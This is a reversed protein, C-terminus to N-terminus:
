PEEPERGRAQERDRRATLRGPKVADFGFRERVRDIARAVDESRRAAPDPFLEPAEAARLNTAAVGLLRVAQGRRGAEAFAPALLHRAAALLTADLATPPRLTTRRTVTHFDGHRLKLVLAGAQLGEERLQGAVRTTLLLLVRDLEDPDAVDRRFTTERSVSKPRERAGLRTGGRGESRRRLSLAAERGLLAALEADSMAQVQAIDTLGRAALRRTTTPGIGPLVSLPLGALFGREWGPRVECIGRPKATDSAIKAIMRNSGIGISCDLATERHVDRRITTAYDLLSVPHLLDTGSLDLYGEDLGTMVVVPAHRELVARVARSASRYAAFEGRVFTAGPCRRV